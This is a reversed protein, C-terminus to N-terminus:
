TQACVEATRRPLPMTVIRGCARASNSSRRAGLRSWVREAICEGMISNPAAHPWRKGAFEHALSLFTRPPGSEPEAEQEVM